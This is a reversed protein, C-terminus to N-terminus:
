RSSSTTRSAWTSRSRRDFRDGIKMTVHDKGNYELIAQVPVSLVNDLQDVLIEVQATM